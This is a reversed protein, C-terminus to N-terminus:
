GEMKWLHIYYDKVHSINEGDLDARAEMLDALIAFFCDVHDNFPM